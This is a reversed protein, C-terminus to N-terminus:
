KKKRFIELPTLNLDKVNIGNEKALQEIENLPAIIWNPKEYGIVALIADTVPTCEKKKDESM